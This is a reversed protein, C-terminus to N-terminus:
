CWTTFHIQELCGYMRDVLTCRPPESSNPGGIIYNVEKHVEPFDGKSDKPKKEQNASKAM